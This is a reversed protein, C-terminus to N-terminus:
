IAKVGGTLGHDVVEFFDIGGCRFSGSLVIRTEIVILIWLVVAILGAQSQILRAVGLHDLCQHIKVCRCGASSVPIVEEVGRLVRKEHLVRFFVVARHESAPDRGPVQAVAM